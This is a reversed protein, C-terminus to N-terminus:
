SAGGRRLAMLQHVIDDGIRDKIAEVSNMIAFVAGTMAHDSMIGAGEAVVACLSQLSDLKAVETELASMASDLTVTQTDPTQELTRM